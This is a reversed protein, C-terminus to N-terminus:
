VQHDNATAITLLAPTARLGLLETLMEAAGDIGYEIGPHRDGSQFQRWSVIRPDDTALGAERKLLNALSAHSGILVRAPADDELLWRMALTTKGAQRNGTIVHVAGDRLGRPEVQAASVQARALQAAREPDPDIDLADGLMRDM